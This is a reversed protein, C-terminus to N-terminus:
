VARPIDRSYVRWHSDLGDRVALGTTGTQIKFIGGVPWNNLPVFYYGYGDRVEAVPM